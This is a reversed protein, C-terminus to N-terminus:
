FVGPVGPTTQLGDGKAGEDRVNLSVRRATPVDTLAASRKAGTLGSSANALSSVALAPISKLIFRRTPRSATLM